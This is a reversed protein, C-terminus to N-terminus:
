LNIVLLINSNNSSNLKQIISVKIDTAKKFSMIIFSVGGSCNFQSPFSTFPGLLNIAGNMM